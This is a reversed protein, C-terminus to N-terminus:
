SRDSVERERERERERGDESVRKLRLVEREL